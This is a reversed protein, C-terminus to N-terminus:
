TGAGSLTAVLLAAQALGVRGLVPRSGHQGRARGASGEERERLLLCSWRLRPETIPLIM